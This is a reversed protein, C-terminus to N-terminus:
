ADGEMRQVRWRTACAAGSIREVDLGRRPSEALEVLAGYIKQPVVAIELEDAVQAVRVSTTDGYNRDLFAELTRAVGEVVTEGPCIRAGQHSESM